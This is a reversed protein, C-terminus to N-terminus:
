LDHQVLDSVALGLLVEVEDHLKDLEFQEILSVLLSLSVLVLLLGLVM